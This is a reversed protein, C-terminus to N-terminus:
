PGAVEGLLLVSGDQCGVILRNASWTLATIESLGVTLVDGISPRGPVGAVVNVCTVTGSRWGIAIRAQESHWAFTIPQDSVQPSVCLVPSRGRPGQGGFDWVSIEPAGNNALWRGSADFAVRTIKAPYGQMELRTDKDTRFVQLSADQNGSVLWKGHPSAALALLSGQFPLHTAPGNRRPEMVHVGGYVAAALRHRGGLWVLDAVTSPLPDSLWRQEGSGSYVGVRKGQALAWRDNTVWRARACWDGTLLPRPTRATIQWIWAGFPGTLVLHAEDPSPAVTLLGGDCTARKQVEGTSADLILADGDSTVLAPAPGLMAIDVPVQDLLQRWVAQEGIAQSM